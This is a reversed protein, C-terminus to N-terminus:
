GFRIGGKQLIMVAVGERLSKVVLEPQGVEGWKRGRQVVFM